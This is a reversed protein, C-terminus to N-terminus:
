NTLLEDILHMTSFDAHGVKIKLFEADIKPNLKRFNTNPPILGRELVLVTKILGAIGSAGELHGVNSKVAGSSSTLQAHRVSAPRCPRPLSNFDCSMCM